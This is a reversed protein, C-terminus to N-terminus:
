EHVPSRQFALSILCCKAGHRRAKYQVGDEASTSTSARSPSCGLVMLFPYSYEHACSLNHMNETEFFQFVELCMIGETWQVTLPHIMSFCLLLVIWVVLMTGLTNLKHM